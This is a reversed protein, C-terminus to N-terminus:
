IFHTKGMEWLGYMRRASVNGYAEKRSGAFNSETFNSETVPVVGIAISM